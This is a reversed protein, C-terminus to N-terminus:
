FKIFLLSFDGGDTVITKFGFMQAFKVTKKDPPLCFLFDIGLQEKMGEMLNVWTSLLQDYIKPSWKVVQCHLYPIGDSVEVELYVYEDEYLVARNVPSM